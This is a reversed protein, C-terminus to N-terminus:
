PQVVPYILRVAGRVFDGDERRGEVVFTFVEESSEDIWRQKRIDQGEEGMKTKDRSAVGEGEEGGIELFASISRRMWRWRRRVQWTLGVGDGGEEEGSSRASSLERPSMARAVRPRIDVAVTVREAMWIQWFAISSVRSYWSSCISSSVFSKPAAYARVNM